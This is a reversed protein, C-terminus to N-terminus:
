SNSAIFDIFESNLLLINQERGAAVGGAGFGVLPLALAGLIGGGIVCGGIIGRLKWLNAENVLQKGCKPCREWFEFDM